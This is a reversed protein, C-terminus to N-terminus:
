AIERMSLMCVIYPLHHRSKTRMPIAAGNGLSKFDCFSMSVIFAVSNSQLSDIIQIEDNHKHFENHQFDQHM